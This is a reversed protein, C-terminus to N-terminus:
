QLHREKITSIRGLISDGVLGNADSILELRILVSWYRVSNNFPVSILFMVYDSMEYERQAELTRHWLVQVLRGM